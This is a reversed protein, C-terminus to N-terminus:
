RNQGRIIGGVPRVPNGGGPYSMDRMLALDISRVSPMSPRTFWQQAQGPDIPANVATTSLVLKMTLRQEPYEFKVEKPILVGSRPDAQMETITAACIVKFRDDYLKRSTVQPRIGSVKSSNFTTVKYVTQGQPSRTEEILDIKGRGMEVRMNQNLTITAMGLGELVWDPQIPFPLQVRGVDTHSCYYLDPPEAKSMWFWFERDNSGLDAAPGGMGPITAGLRFNRPKQAVLWGNLGIPPLIGKRVEMDLNQVQISEIKQAEDNLYNVLDEPKPASGNPPPPTTKSGPHDRHFLDLMNCGTLLVLMILSLFAIAYRM